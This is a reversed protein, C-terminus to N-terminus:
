AWGAFGMKVRMHLRLRARRHLQGRERSIRMMVPRGTKKSLGPLRTCTRKQEASAAASTNAWSCTTQAIRGGVPRDVGSTRPPDRSAHMHLKGNQWCISSRSEMCQSTSQCVVTEDLIVDAEKFGAEVDGVVWTDPAERMPLRGAEVEQWDEATWKFVKVGEAGFHVNGEIRANPGDPRLSELPDVCFPLPELEIRIREIAEAATAEDVAAVALIPEGQYVPENTLGMEAKLPKPRETEGGEPGEEEAAAVTRVPPAVDVLEDATLVAHVGPMKLAESADISVVRAHPMPSLLLKAFLMGEARYDEAYKARGTVKAVLDPTQYNHGILKYDAM